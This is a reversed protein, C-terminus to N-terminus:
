CWSRRPPQRARRVTRGRGGVGVVFVAEPRLLRDVARRRLVAVVARHQDRLYRAAVLQQEAVVRVPVHDGHVVVARIVVVNAVPLVVDDAENVPVIVADYFIAVVTPALM